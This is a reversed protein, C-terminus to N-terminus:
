SFSPFIGATAIIYNITLFPMRNEHSGTGGSPTLSGPLLPQPVLGPVTAPAYFLVTKNTLTPDVPAALFNNSAATTTGSQSNVSFTHQHSPMNPVLLTISEAGGMQGLVYTTGAQSRGQSIIARGRLDPVAFTNIGDGGYNTGLLAFLADNESIPLLSGNCIAWGIPAFTGAFIKIEGLYPEM